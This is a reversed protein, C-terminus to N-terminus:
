LSSVLVVLGVDVNRVVVVGSPPLVVVMMLKFSTFEVCFLKVLVVARNLLTSFLTM